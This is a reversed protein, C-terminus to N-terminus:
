EFCAGRSTFEIELEPAIKKMSDSYKVMVRDFYIMWVQLDLHIEYTPNVYAARPYDDLTSEENLIPDRNKWSFTCPMTPNERVKVYQNYWAEFGPWLDLLLETIIQVREQSTETNLEDLMSDLAILLTPPGVRDSNVVFDAPHM